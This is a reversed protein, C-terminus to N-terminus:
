ECTGWANIVALVDGVDIMNSGDIDAGCPESNTKGWVSLVFLLDEVGIIGDDNLDEECKESLIWHLADAKILIDGDKNMSIIQTSSAGNPVQEHLSHLTSGDKWAMAMSDYVPLTLANCAVTGETNISIASLGVIDEDVTALEFGNADSWRAIQPGLASSSWSFAVNGNQSAVARMTYSGVPFQYILNLSMDKPNHWYYTPAGNAFESILVQGSADFYRATSNGKLNFKQAIDFIEGNEWLMAHYNNGIQIQGAVRNESDIDIAYTTDANQEIFQLGNEQTWIFAQWDSSGSGGSYNGVVSATENMATLSSWGASGTITAVVKFTGNSNAIILRDDQSIGHSGLGAAIGNDNILVGYAITSPQFEQLLKETTGYLWKTRTEM